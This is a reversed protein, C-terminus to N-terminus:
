CPPRRGGRRRRRQRRQAAVADGETLTTPKSKKAQLLHPPHYPNQCDLTEGGLGFLCICVVLGGRLLVHQGVPEVEGPLRPVVLVRHHRHRRHLLLFPLPLRQHPGPRLDPRKDPLHTFKPFQVGHTGINISILEIRSEVAPQRLPAAGDGHKAGDGRRLARGALNGTAASADADM